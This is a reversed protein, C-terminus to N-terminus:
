VNGIAPEFAGDVPLAALRGIQGVFGNTKVPTRTALSQKFLLGKAIKEKVTGLKIRIDVVAPCPVSAGLVGPAGNTPKKHRKRAYDTRASELKRKPPCKLSPSTKCQVKALLDTDASPTNM